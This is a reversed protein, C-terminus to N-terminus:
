SRYLPSGFACRLTFSKQIFAFYDSLEENLIERRAQTHLEMARSFRDANVRRDRGSGIRLFPDQLLQEEVMKRESYALHFTVSPMSGEFKYHICTTGLQYNVQARVEPLIVRSVLGQM